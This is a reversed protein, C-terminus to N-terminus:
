FGSDPLRHDRQEFLQQIPKLSWLKKLQESYKGILELSIESSKSSTENFEIL